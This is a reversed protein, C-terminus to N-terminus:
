RGEIVTVRPRSVPKPIEVVKGVEFGSEDYIIQEIVKEEGEVFDEAAKIDRLSCGQSVFFFLLFYGQLKVLNRM